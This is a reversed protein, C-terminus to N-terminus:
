DNKAGEKKQAKEKMLMLLSKYATLEKINMKELEEKTLMEPKNNM